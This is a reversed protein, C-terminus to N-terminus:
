AFRGGGQGADARHVLDEGEVLDSGSVLAHQAAARAEPDDERRLARQTPPRGRARNACPRYSARRLSTVTLAAAIMLGALLLNWAPGGVPVAQATQRLSTVFSTNSGGNPSGLSGASNILYNAAINFGDAGGVYEVNAGNSPASIIVTAAMGFAGGPPFPWCISHLSTLGAASTDIWAVDASAFDATNGTPILFSGGMQFRLSWDDDSGGAVPNYTLDQVPIATTGGVVLITGAKFVPAITALNTMRYSAFKAQTVATSDGIFLSELDSATLNKTLLIEVYESTTWNGDRRFENIFVDGQVVAAHVPKSAWGSAVAM